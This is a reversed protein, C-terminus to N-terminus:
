YKKILILHCLWYLIMILCISFGAAMSLLEQGLLQFVITSIAAILVFIYAAWAWAKNRIFQNREDKAEIEKAERYSEDKSYRVIHIMRVVGVAILAGGMGSWFADVMEAIGLCLLTIGLVAYIMCVVIRRDTKM